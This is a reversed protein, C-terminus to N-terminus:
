HFSVLSSNWFRLFKFLKRKKHLSNTFFIPFSNLPPYQELPISILSIHCTGFNHCKLTLWSKQSFSLILHVSHKRGKPVLSFLLTQYTTGSPFFSNVNEKWLKLRCWVKEYLPTLLLFDLLRHRIQNTKYEFLSRGLLM